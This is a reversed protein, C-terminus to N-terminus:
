CWGLMNLETLNFASYKVSYTSVSFLDLKRKKLLQNFFIQELVSNLNFHTGVFSLLLYFIFSILYRIFSIQQLLVLYLDTVCITVTASNFNAPRANIINQAHLSIHVRVVSDYAIMNKDFTKIM